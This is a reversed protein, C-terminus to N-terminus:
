ASGDLALVVFCYKTNMKLSMRLVTRLLQSFLIYVARRKKQM